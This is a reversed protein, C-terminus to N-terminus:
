SRSPPTVKLLVSNHIIKSCVINKGKLRHNSIKSKSFKPEDTMQITTTQMVPHTLSNLSKLHRNDIVSQSNKCASRTRDRKPFTDTVAETGFYPKDHCIYKSKKKHSSCRGSNLYPDMNSQFTQM